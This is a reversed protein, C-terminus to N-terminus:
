ASKIEELLEKLRKDYARCLTARYTRRQACTELPLEDVQARAYELAEKELQRRPITIHM